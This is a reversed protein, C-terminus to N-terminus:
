EHSLKIETGAGAGTIPTNITGELRVCIAFHFIATHLFNDNHSSVEVVLLPQIINNDGRKAMECSYRTNDGLASILFLPYCLLCM